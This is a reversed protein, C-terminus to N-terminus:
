EVRAVSRSGVGLELNPGCVRKCVLCGCVWVDVVQEGEQKPYTRSFIAIQQSKGPNCVAPTCSTGFMEKKLWKGRRKTRVGM